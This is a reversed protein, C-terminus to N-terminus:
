LQRSELVAQALAFDEAYTVKLNQASGRVLLPRHGLAEMASAEDTIGAFDSEAARQLAATLAGLRFMQPTQALWKDDRAETATVRGDSARKLTDPLPLALLGGVDDSECADILATVQAPTVLCRAADHVLVWDSAAAGGEALAVLGALVSHARSAGGKPVVRLRGDGMTAVSPVLTTDGPSVVVVCTDIQRVSTLAALTHLVLPRGLLPQYQKPMATGARLGSGACPVVAFIRPQRARDLTPLLTPSETQATM